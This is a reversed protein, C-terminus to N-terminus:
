IRSFTISHAAIYMHWSRRHDNSQMEREVFEVSVAPEERQPMTNNPSPQAKLSGDMEAKKQKLQELERKTEKIADPLPMQKIRELEAAESQAARVQEQAAEESATAANWAVGTLWILITALSKQTSM